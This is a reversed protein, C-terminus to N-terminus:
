KLKFRSDKPIKNQFHARQKMLIELSTLKERDEFNNIFKVDTIYKNEDESEEHIIDLKKKLKPIHKPSDFSTHPIKEDNTEFIKYENLDQNYNISLNNNLNDNRKIEKSDKKKNSYKFIQINNDKNNIYNNIKKYLYKNSNIQSKVLNNGGNKISDLMLFDNKINNLILDKQKNYIKISKDNEVDTFQYSKSNIKPFNYDKKIAYNKLNYAETNIRKNKSKKINDNFIKIKIKSKEKNNYTPIFTNVRELNQKPKKVNSDNILLNNMNKKPSSFMQPSIKPLKFKLKISNSRKKSQILENNDNTYNNETINIRKKSISNNNNNKNKINSSQIIPSNNKDNNSINYKINKLLKIPKEKEKEKVKIKSNEFNNKKNFKHINNNSKNNKIGNYNIIINNDNIKEIKEKKNKKPLSSKSKTQSVFNINKNFEEIVSSKIHEYKDVKVKPKKVKKPKPIYDVINIHVNNMIGTYGNRGIQETRGEFKKLFSNDKM